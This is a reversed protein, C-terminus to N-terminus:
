RSPVIQLPYYYVAENSEHTTSLYYSGPTTRELHLTVNLRTQRGQQIATGTAMAVARTDERTKKVAVSYAGTESLIPLILALEVTRRPLSDPPLQAPVGRTSPFTSLDLTGTVAAMQVPAHQKELYLAIGVVGLLAAALVAGGVVFSKGQPGFGRKEERLQMLRRLCQPCRTVHVVGPDLLSPKRFSYAIKRLLAEDRSDCPVGGSLGAALQKRYLAVLWEESTVTRESSKQRDNM